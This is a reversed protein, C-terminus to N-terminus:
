LFYLTWEGRRHAYETAPHNFHAWGIHAVEGWPGPERRVLKVNHVFSGPETRSKTETEDEVEYGLESAADLVAEEACEGNEENDYVEHLKNEITRPMKYEHPM